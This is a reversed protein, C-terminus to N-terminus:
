QLVQKKVISGDDYIEVFPINSKYNIEKGLFDIKKILHKSKAIEFFALNNNLAGESIWQLILNAEAQTLQDSSGYPPMYGTSIYQELLGTSIIGGDTFGGEILEDYSELSLGGTYSASGQHCQICKSDFIPQIQSNYDIQSFCLFPTFILLFFKM